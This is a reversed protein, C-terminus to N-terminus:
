VCQNESLSHSVLHPGAVNDDIAAASATSDRTDSNKSESSLALGAFVAGAVLVGASGIALTRVHTARGATPGLPDHRAKTRSKVYLFFGCAAAVVPFIGLRIYTGQTSTGRVIQGLAIFIAGLSLAMLILAISVAAITAWHRDIPKHGHSTPTPRMQPRTPAADLPATHSSWATGDWWRLVHSDHDTYWGPSAKPGANGASESRTSTDWLHQFNSHSSTDSGSGSTIPDRFGPTAPMKPDHHSTM